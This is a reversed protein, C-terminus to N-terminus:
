SINSGSKWITVKLEIYANMSPTCLTTIEMFKQWNQMKIRLGHYSEMPTKNYTTQRRLQGDFLRIEGIPKAM